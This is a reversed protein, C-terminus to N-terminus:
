ENGLEFELSEIFDKMIKPNYAKNDVILVILKTSIQQKKNATSYAAITGVVEKFPVNRVNASFKVYPINKNKAGYEGKEVIKFNDYTVISNQFKKLVVDIKENIESTRFDSTTIIDENKLDYIAIKQETPLYKAIIKKYGFLNFCRHLQYDGSVNKFDAFDKETEVFVERPPYKYQKIKEKVFAYGGFAFFAFILAIMLLKKLISKLCGIM